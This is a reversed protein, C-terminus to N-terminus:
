PQASRARQRGGLRGIAAMHERDQSIAAGGRQGAIRAEESTYRHARGLAHATLGGLRAIQRQREPNMAAFGRPRLSPPVTAPQTSM